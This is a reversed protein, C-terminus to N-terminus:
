FDSEYDVDNRLIKSFGSGIERINLENGEIITKQPDISIGRVSKMPARSSPKAKRTKSECV